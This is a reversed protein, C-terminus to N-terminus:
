IEYKSVEQQFAAEDMTAVGLKEAKDLKSGAAEGYVVYDTKKSVSGSVKAGLRELVASAENRSMISLTGTLVVTKGTFMSQQIQEQDSDMRLGYGKLQAILEMNVPEKFFTYISDATIEGVDRIQLLEERTAKMLADMTQFQHALIKAAKEGVQNIGLGYLLKELPQQKSNEIAALLKDVSKEKFGELQLIEERREKLTYIDEITNLFGEKHFLEVKKDGLTDIDMADRSAFHIMSEVVRAPCDPNICFHAAEDPYRVLESGCIPCAHPFQYPVQIGSERRKTIPRVVEPIIDGAKRVVVIDHVRIDREKILDENHLQAASVTTGAVRVPELVANPTIRGTRGVTLVIDLLRTEVEEAPFKYAIAWKPTKATYGVQEQASLDNLKLVMGDIEYPLENRKATIEQIFEWVEEITHCLRRNPNTRIHLDDMAAMAEWHTQYGFSQADMFYYWFADLGRSAAISSDLQRISGAAANRPNAFEEEGKEKRQENLKQFSAKPMYVEGRVEVDGMLDIAMPISKITKVNSTVDEGILGDGRTVAQVFRGDHYHLSMALGDLKLEVVYQPDATVERVREDFARLDDLHFANGLSLMMRKHTVKTFGELVAGGVRQTPSNEDMYQPNEEELKTLEQMYRDYEQDTASPHDLVYYEYSLRELIERLELIRKEIDM